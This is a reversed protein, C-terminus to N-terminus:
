MILKENHLMVNIIEIWFVLTAFVKIITAIAGINDAIKAAIKKFSFVLVSVHIAIKIVNKETM